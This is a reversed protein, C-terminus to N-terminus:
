RRVMLVLQASAELMAISKQLDDTGMSGSTDQVLGVNPVHAKFGPLVVGGGLASGIRSM